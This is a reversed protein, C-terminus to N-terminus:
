YWGEKLWEEARAEREVSVRERRGRDEGERGWSTAVKGESEGRSKDMCGRERSKGMGRDQGGGAVTAQWVSM